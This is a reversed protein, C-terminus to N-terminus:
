TINNKVKQYTKINQLGGLNKYDDLNIRCYKLQPNNNLIDTLIRHIKKLMCETLLNYYCNVTLIDDILSILIIDEKSNFKDVGYIELYKYVNMTNDLIERKAFNM